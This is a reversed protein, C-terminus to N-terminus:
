SHRALSHTGSELEEQELVSLLLDRLLDEGTRGGWRGQDSCGSALRKWAQGVCRVKDEELLVVGEAVENGLVELLCRM